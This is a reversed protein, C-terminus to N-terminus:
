HLEPEVHPSPALGSSQHGKFMACESTPARCTGALTEPSAGNLLKTATVAQSFPLSPTPRPTQNTVEQNPTTTHLLPSQQSWTCLFARSYVCIPLELLSLPWARLYPYPPHNMPQLCSAHLSTFQSWSPQLHGPDLSPIPLLLPMPLLCRQSTPVSSVLSTSARLSGAAPRPWSDSSARGLRGPPIFRFM